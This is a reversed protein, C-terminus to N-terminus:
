VLHSSNLRTSKRDGLLVSQFRPRAVSQSVLDDMAQVDAIAQDKDFSHIQEQVARAISMPEATTRVVLTALTNPEQSYTFYIAPSPSKDLGQHLVDGVVGVIEYPTQRGWQVYLRQGVPNTDPFYQKALAQSIVTVLPRGAVDNDDFARGKVLPISMAKFYGPTITSVSTVPESGPKPIPQGDVRFGTAAGLSTLPLFHISGAATVGPIRQIRDLMEALGAVAAQADKYRASAINMRMTLLHEPNFGPPVNELREFSKILLGAGILLTLAIAM